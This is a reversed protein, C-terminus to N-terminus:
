GECRSDRGDSKKYFSGKDRQYTSIKEEHNEYIMEAAMGLGAIGPVNETGSRM